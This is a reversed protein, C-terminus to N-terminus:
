LKAKIPQNPGAVLRARLADRSVTSHRNLSKQFRKHGDPCRQDAMNTTRSCFINAFIRRFVRCQSNEGGAQGDMEGHSALGEFIICKRADRRWCYGQNAMLDSM